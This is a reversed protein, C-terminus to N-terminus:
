RKASTEGSGSSAQAEISPTVDRAQVYRLGEVLAALQEDTLTITV